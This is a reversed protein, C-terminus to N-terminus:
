RNKTRLAVYNQGADSDLWATALEDFGNIYSHALNRYSRHWMALFQSSDHFTTKCEDDILKLLDLRDPESVARSWASFAIWFVLAATDFL